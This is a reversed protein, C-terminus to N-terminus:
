HLAIYNRIYKLKIRSIHLFMNRGVFHLEAVVHLMFEALCIM